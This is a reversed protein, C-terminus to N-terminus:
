QGRTKNEGSSGVRMGLFNKLSYREADIHEVQRGDAGVDVLHL